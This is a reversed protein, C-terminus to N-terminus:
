REAGGVAPIFQAVQNDNCTGLCTTDGRSAAVFTQDAQVVMIIIPM